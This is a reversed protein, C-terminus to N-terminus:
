KLKIYTVIKRDIKFKPKHQCILILNKPKDVKTLYFKLSEDSEICDIMINDAHGFSHFTMDEVIKGTGSFNSIFAQGLRTKGTGQKGTIVIIM